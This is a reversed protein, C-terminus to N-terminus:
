CPATGCRLRPLARARARRILSLARTAVAGARTVYITVRTGTSSYSEQIVIREGARHQYEFEGWRAPDTDKERQWGPAVPAANFADKGSWPLALTWAQNGLWNCIYDQDGAYILVRIGAALQEPLDQQFHQM